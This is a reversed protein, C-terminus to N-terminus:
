RTVIEENKSDYKYKVIDGSIILHIAQDIIGVPAIFWERPTHRSGEKDFVDAPPQESLIKKAIIAREKFTM